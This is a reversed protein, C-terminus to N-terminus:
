ANAAERKKLFFEAILQDPVDLGKPLYGMKEYAAVVQWWPSGKEHTIVSLQFASFGGYVEWIKNILEHIESSVPQDDVHDPLAKNAIPQNGYPKLMEYLSPIVPGYQWAEITEDLLPKGTLGLHWGHAFYVLKQLKMHSLQEGKQCAVKLFEKAIDLASYPKM